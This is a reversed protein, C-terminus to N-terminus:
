VPSATGPRLDYDSITEAPFVHGTAEVDSGPGVTAEVIRVAEDATEAMAIWFTTLRRAPLRQETVVRIGFVELM